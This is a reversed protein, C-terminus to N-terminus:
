VDGELGFFRAANRGCLDWLDETPMNRERAVAEATFVSLAPENLQGRWPVPALYPCDTEVLLRDDPIIRVADRLAQNAAYTVPGPISIHWGRDLIKGAMASDGGFCHWLLPRGAFGEEDLITLTDEFADRSHIVVPRDVDAALRLQIRFIRQQVDRPCDPGHYDLGIEGVARLQADRRFDGALAEWEDEGALLGDSPHVGLVFFLDPAGPVAAARERLADKKERYAAHSLFIQGVRALGSAAARRLVDEVAPWLPKSDLHAHSDVGVKPLQLSEPRRREGHTKAM